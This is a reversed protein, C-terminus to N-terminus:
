KKRQVKKPGQLIVPESESYPPNKFFAMVENFNNEEAQSFERLLQKAALALGHIHKKRKEPTTIAMM